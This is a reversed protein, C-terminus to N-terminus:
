YNYVKVIMMCLLIVDIAFLVYIIPVSKRIYKLFENVFVLVPLYLYIIFLAKVHSFFPYKINYLYYLIISIITLIVSPLYLYNNKINYVSLCFGVAVAFFPLLGLILIWKSLIYNEKDFKIFLGHGELWITAYTGAPISNYARNYNSYKTSYFKDFDADRALVPQTFIKPDFMFLDKLQHTGPPQISYIRSFKKLDNSKIFLDGYIILNRMYWWGALIFVVSSFVAVFKILRKLEYKKSLYIISVVLYISIVMAFGSYKILVAGGNILGSVLASRFSFDGKKVIGTFHILSVTIFLASMMENGIMPSLYLGVPIYMALIAILILDLKNKNFFFYSFFISIFILSLGIITSLLKLGLSVANIDINSFINFIFSGVLYYLPPQYFEFSTEPSSFKDYQAISIINILHWNADYGKLIPFKVANSIRLYISPLIVLTLISVFFIQSYKRFYRNIGAQM